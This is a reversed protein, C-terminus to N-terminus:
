KVEENSDFKVEVEDIYLTSGIAGEFVDGNKSSTFVITYSYGRAALIDPDATDGVFTMEFRTWTDTPPLADVRAKSVIYESTLINTGDLVVNNGNADQNRYFVAYIDAVDVRGPVPSMSADTFTEGPCYKYYGSVRMPQKDVPVGFRTAQLPNTLVSALDFEGLFLSGAAIPKGMWQALSGADQTNLCVGKGRYGDDVSHTPFQMPTWNSQVIALGANGSSWINRRNGESDIEYFIDYVCGNSENRVTDVHEFSFKDSSLDAEQFVVSYTRTWEGDQSTVTYTVPGNSFDQLSGSEPSITAGPTIEFHVAILPLSATSRVTFVIENSNSPLNDVRMQNQHYFLSVYEDGEVWASMIDCESNMAEEKICSVIMLCMMLAILMKSITKM